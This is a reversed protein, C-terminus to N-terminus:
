DGEGEALQMIGAMSLIQMRQHAPEAILNRKRFGTLTRSVTELTLGLFDAIDARTMPMAIEKPLPGRRRQAEVLGLIFAAVRSEATRRGVTVVHEQTQALEELCLDLLRRELTPYTRLLKDLKPRDIRCFQSPTLLEADFPYTKATTYGIIDGAFRFGVVQQRGDPLLRTLKVTGNMISFARTAPDGERFLTARAPLSTQESESAVDDLAAVDLPRCIGTVRSGCKECVDLASPGVQGSVRTADFPNM